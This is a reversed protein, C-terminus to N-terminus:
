NRSLVHAVVNQTGPRHEWEMNFEALKIVWRIMGSSLSKGNLLHTLAAHDTTVNIPLSGLYTRFKNRAWVVALCEKEKAAHNRETSCLTRSAYVVPMQEQNFVTGIGM